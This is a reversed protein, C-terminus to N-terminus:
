RIEVTVKKDIANASAKMIMRISKAIRGNKGIVKGMDDPAVNLILTVNHEDVNEEFVVVEDPNDVISKVIDALIQKLQVM